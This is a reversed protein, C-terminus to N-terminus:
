ASFLLGTEKIGSKVTNIHKGYDSYYWLQTFTQFRLCFPPILSVLPNTNLCLSIILGMCTNNNLSHSMMIMKNM